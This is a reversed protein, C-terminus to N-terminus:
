PKLLLPATATAPGAAELAASVAEATERFAETTRFGPPRPVPGAVPLDAAMRGPGPTLVVVREAMYVAEEVNHTVFVV